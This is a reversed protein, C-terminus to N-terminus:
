FVMDYASPALGWPRAYCHVKNTPQGDADVLQGGAHAWGLLSGELNFARGAFGHKQLKEAFKGSRYGITCYCVVVDEDDLERGPQGGGPARLRVPQEELEFEESSVAGPIRSVRMEKDGRCDVVVLKGAGRKVGLAEVEDEPLEFEGEGVQQVDGDELLGRLVRVPLTPVAEFSKDYGRYM